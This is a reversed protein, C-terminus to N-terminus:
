FELVGVRSDKSIPGRILVYLNLADMFARDRDLQILTLSHSVVISEKPIHMMCLGPWSSLARMVLWAPSSSGPSTLRASFLFILEQAKIM